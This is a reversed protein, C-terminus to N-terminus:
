SWTKPGMVEHCISPSAISVTVPKIKPPEMMVASPSQLWSILLHKSRPLFAIVLWSLMNFLLSMVKGAFTQNDFMTLTHSKWYDHIFTLTPSYLFNLASTNISKCPPTLSSEGQVALLDLRDMRFSILRSYESSPNISFSFRWYKPWRIRFLQSMPFSGSAPFSQLHSSYPTVSSSITPHCWQSSPCSKSCAGPTPSPCPLRANAARPTSFLWVRSLSQVSQCHLLSFTGERLPQLTLPQESPSHDWTGLPQQDQHCVCSQKRSLMDMADPHGLLITECDIAQEAWVLCRSPGDSGRTVTGLGGKEREPADEQTRKTPQHTNLRTQSQSGMSQLGGPEETRPIRWTLVSPHTAMENELSDERGLSGFMKQMAPLNKVMQTLLSAWEKCALLSWKLDNQGESM